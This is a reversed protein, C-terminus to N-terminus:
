PLPEGFARFAIGAGLSASILPTRWAEAFGKMIVTTEIPIWVTEKGDRSTRLVYRKPNQAINSAYKPDLGTDFLLYIHADGPNAPPVVDVFAAAVGISGLLSAFCVTMDDCDGGRLRLTEEPYQVYDATLRPDNVYVLKGAFADFLARAKSLLELGGSALSDRAALLIDRTTRLVEPDAPRVFFRLSEANGDWDNRGRVVVRTQSRDEEEGLPM